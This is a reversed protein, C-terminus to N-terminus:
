RPRPRMQAAVWRVVDPTIRTYVGPAQGCGFAWGVVAVLESPTTTKLAGGSDGTCTGQHQPSAAERGDGACVLATPITVAPAAPDGTLHIQDTIAKACSQGNVLTLQVVQLTRAMSVSAQAVNQQTLHALLAARQNQQAGTTTAESGWGAATVVEGPWYARTALPLVAFRSKLDEPDGVPAPKALHVLALDNLPPAYAGAASYGPQVIVKDMPFLQMRRSLVRSGASEVVRVGGARVVWQRAYAGEGGKGDFCHAATLVWDAAILTGGCKHDDLATKPRDPHIDGSWALNPDAWAIEVVFRAEAADAATGGFAAVMPLTAAGCFRQGDPGTLTVARNLPTDQGRALLEEKDNGDAAVTLHDTREGDLTELTVPSPHTPVVQPGQPLPATADSAPPPCSPGDGITLRYAGPPLGKLDVLLMAGVPVSRFDVEGVSAGSASMMTIGVYQAFAPAPAALVALAPLSAIGILRKM